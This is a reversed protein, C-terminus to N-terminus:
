CTKNLLINKVLHSHTVHVDAYVLRLYMVLSLENLVLVDTDLVVVLILLNVSLTIM